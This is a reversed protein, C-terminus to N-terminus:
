LNYESKLWDKAEQSVKEDELVLDRIAAKKDVQEGCIEDMLQNWGKLLDSSPVNGVQSLINYAKQKLYADMAKDMWVVIEPTLGHQQLGRGEGFGQEFKKTRLHAYKRGYVTNVWDMLKKGLEIGKESQPNLHLNKKFEEVLDFWEKQFEEKQNATSNSILKSEFEAYEKLEDPTFIEKVWADELEQTMKYVKILEIIKKWPISKTDSCDHSINELIASADLFSAAKKRLFMSQMALNDAVHENKTLLKQIQSLEFGFFKLATIQQLKLLDEESYLRYNNSQRLSPKLLDIKDYYHLTRVSVQALKAFEKTQWQKM